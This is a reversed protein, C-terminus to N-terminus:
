RLGRLILGIVAIALTVIAGVAWWRGQWNSNNNELLKLRQDISMGLVQMADRVQDRDRDHMDRTVYQNREQALQARFENMENLRRSLEIRTANVSDQEAAHRQEHMAQWQERLQKEGDADM